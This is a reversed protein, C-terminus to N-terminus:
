RALSQFFGIMRQMSATRAGPHGGVRYGLYRQVRTMLDFSHVAGEYVVVEIPEDPRRRQEEICRRPPTWGDDGGALILIPTVVRSRNLAGCWPYYAVVGRFGAGQRPASALAARMATSGGNSQGLLFIRNGDINPQAALWDRANYADQLRYQRAQELARGSRCVRSGRVGRPGFSDLIVSALGAQQLAAAHANLQARVNPELGSCGPMLIVAPFPGSGAPMRIQAEVDSSGAFPAALLLCVALLTSATLRAM